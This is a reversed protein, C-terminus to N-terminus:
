KHNKQDYTTGEGLASRVIYERSLEKQAEQRQKGKWEELDTAILRSWLWRTFGLIAKVGTAAVIVSALLAELYSLGLRTAVMAALVFNAGSILLSVIVDRSIEDKSKRDGILRAARFMIGLPIGILIVMALKPDMVFAFMQQGGALAGAAASGFPLAYKQLLALKFM